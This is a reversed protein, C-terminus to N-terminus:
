RTADIGPATSPRPRQPARCRPPRPSCASGARGAAGPPPARRGPRAGEAIVAPPAGALALAVGVGVVFGAAHALPQPTARLASTDVFLTTSSAAEWVFKGVFAAALLAAIVALLTDRGAVARALLMAVLLGFLASDIGSLGCYSGLQPCTTFLLGPISLAALPVCAFFCARSAAACPVGLLVFASVDWLLHDGSAHVWHGTLWRWPEGDSIADRTCVLHPALAPAVCLLAAPAVLALAPVLAAGLARWTWARGVPAVASM